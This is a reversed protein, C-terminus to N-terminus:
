ITGILQVTSLYMYPHILAQGVSVLVLGGLRSYFLMPFWDYHSLQHQRRRPSSSSSSSVEANRIFKGQEDRQMGNM